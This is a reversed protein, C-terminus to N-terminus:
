ASERKPVGKNKRGLAVACADPSYNWKSIAKLVKAQIIPSVKASGNVVRSVTATSVGAFKAIEKLTRSM